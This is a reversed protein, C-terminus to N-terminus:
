KKKSFGAVCWAVGFGFAWFLALPLFIAGAIRSWQPRFERSQVTEVGRAVAAALKRTLFGKPKEQAAQEEAKRQKNEELADVTSTARPPTEWKWFMGKCRGTEPTIACLDNRKNGEVLVFGVVALVWIASVLIGIRIFGTSLSSAM